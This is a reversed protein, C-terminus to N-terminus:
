PLAWVELDDFHIKVGAEDFAGAILGIDGEAFSTDMVDVLHKGNVYFSFDAGQAILTLHNTSQGLKIHLSTTWEVLTEWEDNVQKLVEYYGDSRILFAYFNDDDRHRVIVGFDNKDPGAVKRADVELRFDAFNRGPTGWADMQPKKVLIYYEGHFYGREADEDSSVDWGSSPDRFDDSYLVPSPTV